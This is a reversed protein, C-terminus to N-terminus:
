AGGLARSAQRRRLRSLSEPTIGLYSAIHYHPVRDVLAPCQRLLDRYREEPSRSLLEIQRRERRRALALGAAPALERWAAHGRALRELGARDVSLLSAGTLAQLNSESPADSCLAPHDTAFSHEVLFGTTVERGEVVYYRRLVGSVVFSLAHVREGARVLHAGRRLRRPRLLGVFRAWEADALPVYRQLLARLAVLADDAVRLSPADPPSHPPM